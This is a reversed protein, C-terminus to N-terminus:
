RGGAQHISARKSAAMNLECRNAVRSIIATNVLITVNDDICYLCFPLVTFTLLINNAFM